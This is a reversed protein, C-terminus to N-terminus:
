KEREIESTIVYLCVESYQNYIKKLFILHFHKIEM